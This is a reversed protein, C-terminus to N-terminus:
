RKLLSAATILAGIVDLAVSITGSVVHWRVNSAAADAERKLCRDREGQCTLADIATAQTTAEDMCVMPQTLTAGAPLKEVVRPAADAALLLALALATM